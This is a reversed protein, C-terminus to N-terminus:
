DLLVEDVPRDEIVLKHLARAMRLPDSSQWVNRGV